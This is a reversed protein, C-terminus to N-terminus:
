AYAPQTGLPARRRRRNGALGIAFLAAAFLGLMGPAPVQTGSSSGGTTTSGGTSTSTMQGSASADTFGNGNIAQYRVFFDDLTISSVADAFNLTLTGTGTDGADTGGGNSCSGSSRAKFCVDVSGIGNPYSGDVVVFSYDGTANASSIDPDTNFSFSSVTSDLGGGTTNALSYSFSYSNASVSDLTLTLSSTLNDVTNSSDGTFGDFDITFSSGIDGSDLTIPDALAPSAWGIAVAALATTFFNRTM